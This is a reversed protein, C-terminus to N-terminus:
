SGHKTFFNTKGPKIMGLLHCNIHRNSIFRVFKTVGMICKIARNDDNKCFIRM